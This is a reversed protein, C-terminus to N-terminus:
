FNRALFRITENSVEDMSDSTKYTSCVNSSPLGARFLVGATRLEVCSDPVIALSVIVFKTDSPRLWLNNCYFRKGIFGCLRVPKVVFVWVDWDAEIIEVQRGVWEIQQSSRGHNLWVHLVAGLRRLWRARRCDRRGLHIQTGNFAPLCRVSSCDVFCKMWLHLGSSDVPM